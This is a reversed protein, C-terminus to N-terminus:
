KRKLFIRYKPKGDATESKAMREVGRVEFDKVFGARIKAALKANVKGECNGRISNVLLCAAVHEADKCKMITTATSFFLQDDPLPHGQKDVLMHEATERCIARIAINFTDFENERAPNKSPKKPTTRTSKAANKVNRSHAILVQTENAITTLDTIANNFTGSNQLANDFIPNFNDVFNVLKKLVNNMSPVLDIWSVPAESNNPSHPRKQVRRRGYLPTM